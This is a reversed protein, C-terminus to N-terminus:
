AFQTQSYPLFYGQAHSCVPCLGPAEAGTHLYGCNTCIWITGEEKKYLTGNQLDEAFKGFRDGHVKEIGAIMYFSNSIATFGEEKAIDGFTKYADQWEEYENHQAAKLYDLTTDYINVPYSADMTFNTDVVEKLHNYFVTAHAQEQKATYDFVEAITYFGDKRAKSAAMNYRNRAQSEGAFARMLNIKTQSDALNM